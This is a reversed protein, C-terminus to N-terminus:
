RYLVFKIRSLRYLSTLAILFVKLDRHAINNSHLFSIAKCIDAIIGAAEIFIFYKSFLMRLELFFAYSWNLLGRETFATDARDQIRNFLEGGEMSCCLASKFLTTWEIINNTIKYWEMVVLLSKAGNYQDEYVDM